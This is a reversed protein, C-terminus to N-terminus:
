QAGGDVVPVTATAIKAADTELDKLQQEVEIQDEDGEKFAQEANKIIAAFKASIDVFTGTIKIEGGLELPGSAANIKKGKITVGDIAVGADGPKLEIQGGNNLSISGGGAKLLLTEKTLHVVPNKGKGDGMRLLLSNNLGMICSKASNGNLLTFGKGNLTATVAQKGGTKQSLIISNKAKAANESTLFIGHQTGSDLILRNKNGTTRFVHKKSASVHAKDAFENIYDADVHLYDTNTVVFSDVPTAQEIGLDADIAANKVLVNEKNNNTTRAVAQHCESVGWDARRLCGDLMNLRGPNAPPAIVKPTEENGKQRTNLFVGTSSHLGIPGTAVQNINSSVSQLLVGGVKNGFNRVNGAAIMCVISIIEPILASVSSTMLTRIAAKKKNLYYNANSDADNCYVSWATEVTSITENWTAIQTNINNIEAHYTAYDDVESSPVAPKEPAPKEAIQKQLSAIEKNIDAVVMNKMPCLDGKEKASLSDCFAADYKWYATSNAIYLQKMASTLANVYDNKAADNNNAAIALSEAGMSVGTSMLQMVIATILKSKEPTVQLVQMCSDDKENSAFTVQYPSGKEAFKSRADYVLQGSCAAAIISNILSISATGFSYDANKEGKALTEFTSSIIGTLAQMVPPLITAVTSTGVIHSLKHGSMLQQSLTTISSGMMSGANLWMDTVTTASDPSGASMTLGRGSPTLLSIGQKTDTDNISIQNGGATRIGQMNCNDSRAMSGTEANSLAGSILPCDPNGDVFTVAVETGPLLPFSMGSDNGVQSQAMRIWCSAKGAERSSIDFPFIVKYRGYEDLEPRVGSGAGDIFANIVGHIATRKAQRAPRYPLDAQQCSFSNHYFYHEKVGHMPLGLGLSLFAEQSGEHSVSTLLYTQNFAPNYHNEMTFQYGPRLSPVASTGRFVSGRCRLEEARIGALRNAEADSNAQERTLYVDGLGDVSVAATGVVPKNPNLWNYTRIVVQCPLPTSVQTFNTIITDGHAAQLGSPPSYRLTPSHAMPTFSNPSDAFVLTDAGSIQSFFYAIGQEELRWCIYDFLNENHQMAFERTPYDSRSLRFEHAFAFYPQSTLLESVTDRVTQDLFIKSQVIQTMKWFAPRLTVSYYTYGNYHGSQTVEAPYGTFDAPTGGPRILSLTASNRLVTAADVAPNLSVLDISFSFLASIGETGSFRVVHFTDEPLGHSIFRFLETYQGSM